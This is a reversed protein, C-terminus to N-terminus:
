NRTDNGEGVTGRVAMEMLATLLEGCAAADATELLAQKERPAFPCGMALSTILREGPAQAIAALDATIGHRHFYPKVAAMLRDRDLRPEHGDLDARWRSWDPQVIRFLDERRMEEAVDFRSVGLLTLVFRGEATLEQFEVIRGMCGTRYLPPDGADGRGELPQIMGVMRGHALAHRVMALYRPEFVNLPLRGRPLLLAGTLPFLPLRAPLQDFSPDFPGRSASM